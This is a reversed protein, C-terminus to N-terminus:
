SSVSSYTIELVVSYKSCLNQVEQKQQDDLDTSTLDVQVKKVEEHPTSARSGGIGNSTKKPDIITTDTMYAIKQGRPITTTRNSINTLCVQVHQKEDAEVAIAPIIVGGPLTECAEVMGQSYGKQCGMRGAIVQSSNPKLIVQRCSYIWIEKEDDDDQVLAALSETVVKSKSGTGKGDQHLAKLVNTGVVVPVRKGFGTTPVVLVPTSVSSTGPLVVEVEIFGCYPVLQGGAGEIQLIESLKKLPYQQLQEMYFDQGVTTIMSGTDILGKCTKGGIKIDVENSDGILQCEPSKKTNKHRIGKRGVFSIVRRKFVEQLLSCHTREEQMPLM